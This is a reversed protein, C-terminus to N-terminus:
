LLWTCIYRCDCYPLKNAIVMVNMREYGFQAGALPFGILECSSLSVSNHTMAHPETEIFKATHDYICMM